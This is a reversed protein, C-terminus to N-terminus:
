KYIIVHNFIIIFEFLIASKLAFIECVVFDM